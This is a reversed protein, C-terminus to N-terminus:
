TWNWAKQHYLFYLAGLETARQRQLEQEQFEEIEVDDGIEVGGTGAQRAEALPNALPQLGHM